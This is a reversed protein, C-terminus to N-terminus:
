RNALFSQKLSKPAYVWCKLISFQRSVRPSGCSGSSTCSLYDDDPFVRGCAIGAMSDLCLSDQATEGNRALGCRQRRELPKIKRFLM